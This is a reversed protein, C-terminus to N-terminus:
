LGSRFPLRRGDHHVVTLGRLATVDAVTTPSIHLRAPGLPVDWSGDDCASPLTDAVRAFARALQAPDQAEAAIETIARAGNAHRMLAPQWVCEPTLHQCFYVRIGPVPQVAFRVTDFRAEVQQGDLIAPRTLKQVPNVAYGADRLRDYTAQADQTRLVLAELGLPSDAIEKRAPVTGAPWGLLEIYAHELVILRNWSGLNHTATESLTYGQAEVGPALEEMRDRVMIVAHDLEAPGAKGTM